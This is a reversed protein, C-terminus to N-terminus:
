PLFHFEKIVVEIEKGDSPAVGNFLWLNIRVKENGSEPIYNGSYTWSNIVYNPNITTPMDIHDHLSQFFISDPNWDFLHTTWTGNLSTNFQYRNGSVDWPQIVYQSNQGSPDGWRAFEIDIERYYPSYDYDYTFLGLVVNENLTDIRAVVYFIYKGYGLTRETFVEACYWKGDRNTIKLHLGDNDVWVNEESDSFYNVGPGVKSSESAKVKWNYGSFNIEKSVDENPVDDDWTMVNYDINVAQGFNWNINEFNVSVSDGPLRAAGLISFSPNDMKIAFTMRRDERDDIVWSIQTPTWSVVVHHRDGIISNDNWYGGVPQNDAAGEVMVTMGTPSVAPDHIIGLAIYNVEDQWFQVFAKYGTGSGITGGSGTGVIQLELQGSGPLREKSTVGAQYNVTGQGWATQSERVGSVTVLTKEANVYGNLQARAMPALILVYVLIALVSIGFRKNKM